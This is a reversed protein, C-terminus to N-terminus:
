LPQESRTQVTTEAYHSQREYLAALNNLMPTMDTSDVEVAKWLPL